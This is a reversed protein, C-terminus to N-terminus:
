KKKGLEDRLKRCEAALDQLGLKAYLAAAKDYYGWALDNHGQLSEIDGEERLWNAEDLRSPETAPPLPRGEVSKVGSRYIALFLINCSRRDSQGTEASAAPWPHFTLDGNIDVRISDNGVPYPPNAISLVIERKFDVPPLENPNRYIERYREWTTAWDTPANIMGIAKSYCLDMSKNSRYNPNNWSRLSSYWTVTPLLFRISGKEMNEWNDASVLCLRSKDNNIMLGPMLADSKCESPRLHFTGDQFPLSDILYQNRHPGFDFFLRMQRGNYVLTLEHIVKAPYVDFGPAPPSMGIDAAHLIMPTAYRSYKTGRYKDIIVRYSFSFAEGAEYSKIMMPEIDNISKVIIKRMESSNMINGKENRVVYTFGHHGPQGFAESALLFILTILLTLFHSTMCYFM